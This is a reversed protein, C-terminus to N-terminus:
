VDEGKRTLNSISLSERLMPVWDELFIPQVNAWPITLMPPIRSSRLEVAVADSTQPVEPLGARPIGPELDALYTLLPVM